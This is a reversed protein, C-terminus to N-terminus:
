LGIRGQRPDPRGNSDVHLTQSEPQIRRPLRPDRSRSVPRQPLSRPPQLGFAKWIRVIATQSLGTAEAMSRTRWQTANAPTTELTRTVVDEVQEDTITRPVGPRPEDM